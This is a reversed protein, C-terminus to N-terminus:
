RILTLYSLLTNGVTLGYGLILGAAILMGFRVYPNLKERLMGGAILSISLIALGVHYIIAGSYAATKQTEGKLFELATHVTVPGIILIIIGVVALTTCRKSIAVVLRAAM